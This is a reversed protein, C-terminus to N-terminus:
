YRLIVSIAIQHLSKPIAVQILFNWEALDRSWLSGQYKTAHVLKFVFPCPMLSMFLFENEASCQTCSSDSIALCPFPILNWELVSKKPLFRCLWETLIRGSLFSLLVFRCLGQSLMNQAAALLSSQIVVHAKITFYSLNAKCKFFFSWFDQLVPFLDFQLERKQHSVHAACGRHLM